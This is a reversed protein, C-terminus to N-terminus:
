PKHPLVLRDKDPLSGDQQVALIYGGKSAVRQGPGLSIQPYLTPWIDAQVLHELREILYDRSINERMHMVARAVLTLALSTNCLLREETLAINRSQLWTEVRMRRPRWAAPLDRLRVIRTRSRLSEPVLRQADPILSDSLYLTADSGNLLHLSTVDTEKLWLVLVDSRAAAIMNWFAADAANGEKLIKDQLEVGTVGQLARRLADAAYEGDSQQRYLQIIRRVAGSKRNQLAQALLEAEHGLGGSLYLTYFEHDTEGPQDTDPFLCPLELRECAAQIGSWRGHGVGGIVAYVPQDRYYGDIQMPWSAPQGKLEWVHLRWKHYARYIRGHGMVSRQARRKTESRTEANKDRFFAEMVELLAQRQSVPVGETVITAFHMETETVGPPLTASLGHLYTALSKFDTEALTYRPMLSSLRRGSADIGDRLARRLTKDDYAARAYPADAGPKFGLLDQNQVHKTQFLYPATVPPVVREGETAGFGSRRHCNQCAAREGVLEVDNEVRARLPEGSPLRGERYIAMGRDDNDAGTGTAPVLMGLLVAMFFSVASSLHNM